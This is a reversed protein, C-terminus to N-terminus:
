INFFFRVGNEEIKEIKEKIYLSNSIQVTDNEVGNVAFFTAFLVFIQHLHM